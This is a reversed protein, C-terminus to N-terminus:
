PHVHFYKNNSCMHLQYCFCWTLSPATQTSTHSPFLVPWHDPPPPLFIRRHNHHQGQLHAKLRWKAWLSTTLSSSSPPCVQLPWATPLASSLLIHVPSCMLYNHLACSSFPTRVPLATLHWRAMTLMMTCIPYFLSLTSHFHGKQCVCKDKLYPNEQSMSPTSKGSM